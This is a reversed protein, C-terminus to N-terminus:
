LTGKNSITHCELKKKQIFFNLILLEFQLNKKLSVNFTELWKDGKLNDKTIGDRYILRNRGKARNSSIAYVENRHNCTVYKIFSDIKTWKTGEPFLKSINERFYLEHLKSVAWVCGDGVSVMEFKTEDDDNLEEFKIRSWNQGCYASKEDVGYRMHVNGNFDVGWIKLGVGISVQQFMEESIVHRWRISSANTESVLASLVFGDFNTAWILITKEPLLLSHHSEQDLSISKLRHTQPIEQWLSPMKVECKRVWRRRRVYDTMPNREGHFINKRFDFAYQWGDSDVGGPTKYCIQWNKTSWSFLTGPL